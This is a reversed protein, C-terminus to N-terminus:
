NGEPDGRPRRDPGGAFRPFQDVFRFESPHLTVDPASPVYLHVDYLGDPRERYALGETGDALVLKRSVRRGSPIPGRGDWPPELGRVGSGDDGGIAEWLRRWVSM